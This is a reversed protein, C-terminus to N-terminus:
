GDLRWKCLTLGGAFSDARASCPFEATRPCSPCRGARSRVAMGVSRKFAACGGGGPDGAFGPTAARPFLARSRVLPAAPPLMGFLPLPRAPCSSTLVGGALVCAWNWFLLAFRTPCCGRDLGAVPAKCFLWPRGVGCCSGCGPNKWFNAFTKQQPQIKTIKPANHGNMDLGDLGRIM